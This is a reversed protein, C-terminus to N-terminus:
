YVRLLVAQDGYATGGVPEWVYVRITYDNVKQYTALTATNSDMVPAAGRIYTAYTVGYDDTVTTPFTVTYDGDGNRTVSPYGTPAANGVYSTTYIGSMMDVRTVTPHAPTTDDAQFHVAGFPCTRVAAAVDGCLRLYEEAGLDTRPNTVGQSQYNVKSATGGYTEASATRAWAPNGSPTAM